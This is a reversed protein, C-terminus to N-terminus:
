RAYIKTPSSMMKLMIKVLSDDRETKYLNQQNNPPQLTRVKHLQHFPITPFDHHECHYNTNATLFDYWKGVYTSKTPNSDSDDDPTTYHNSIFMAAIPHPPLSWLTESLFLFLLSKYGCVVLLSIRLLVQLRINSSAVAHFHDPKNPFFSNKGTIAVAFDNISLMVRELLFSSAFAISNRIPSKHQWLKFFANSISASFNNIKPGAEGGGALKLRHTTFLVDGDEFNEQSSTFLENSGQVTGVNQHHSLHGFRLYLFYGFISPLSCYKLARENNKASKFLTNHCADHLIQLQWLSMTSGFTAALFFLQPLPLSHCLISMSLLGVNSLLLLPAGVRASHQKSLQRLQYINEPTNLKPDLLKRRRDIHWQAVSTSSSMSSSMSSSTSSSMSSYSFSTCQLWNTTIILVAILNDRIMISQVISAKAYTFLNAIM